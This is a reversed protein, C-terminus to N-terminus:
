VGEREPLHVSFGVFLAASIVGAGVRLRYSRLDAAPQWTHESRQARLGALASGEGSSDRCPKDGRLIADKRRPPLDSRSGLGSM